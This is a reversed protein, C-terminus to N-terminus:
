QRSAKKMGYLSKLLKWFRIEGQNHFGQPFDMYVAEDLNGQLFANNVDMQYMVWGKLSFISILIWVSVMKAVPSFTEYNDLGKKQTYGKTM